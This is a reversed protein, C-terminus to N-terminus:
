PMSLESRAGQISSASVVRILLGWALILSAVVL